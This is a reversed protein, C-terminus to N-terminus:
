GHSIFKEELGNQVIKCLQPTAADTLEREEPTLEKFQAKKGSFAWNVIYPKPDTLLGNPCKDPTDFATWMYYDSLAFSELPNAFINTRIRGAKNDKVAPPAFDQYIVTSDQGFLKDVIKETFGAKFIPPVEYPNGLKLYKMAEEETKAKLMAIAQGQMKGSLKIVTTPWKESYNDKNIRLSNTTKPININSYAEPNKTFEEILWKYSIYKDSLYLMIPSYGPELRMYLTDKELKDPMFYHKHYKRDFEVWPYTVPILEIGFEESADLFEKKYLHLRSYMVYVKRFQHKKAFNVINYIEPGYKTSYIPRIKELIGISRNLEIIHHKGNSVNIDMGTATGVLAHQNKDYYFGKHLPHQAFKEDFEILSEFANGFHDIKKGHKIKLGADYMYHLFKDPIRQYSLKQGIGINKRMGITLKDFFRGSQAIFKIRSEILEKKSTM